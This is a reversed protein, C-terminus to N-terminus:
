RGIREVYDINKLNSLKKMLRRLQRNNNVQVILNAISVSDNVKTDVSTININQNSICESIEKLWGKYDQGAIKLQVNFHDSRKVNWNVPILRDTENALLPLSKCSSIHVTLGRGRTVFGILDDGPIPNCCKGFNVMLNDIGDLVIEDSIPRTIKSFNLIRNEDINEITKQPRLKRLIDRVTINGNGIEKLLMDDSSYGFREYSKKIEKLDKKMKLRRLTKELLELGLKISEDDRLSKLYKGVQNRAKSTVIYKQWGYSPMQKKGTIIEVRDGNKLKTNLPVTSHNVKAGMCHMGIQTHVQFAFDVPTAGIPLQILDGAPTFVFIEESFLDVKLLDMFEKPDSSENQLIDLLERLWKVNKDLEASKGGKYVWHAAVGIEATDDMESTRIQIEVMRGGPGVVTTHVSQYGNSKPMAIFDKFREQIPNYLSHVIGLALYCQEVKNVVIRIAYLDYIEEFEKNRSLMKGYISALSKPRGYICPEIDYKKLEIGIPKLISHIFKKRQRNTTKLKSDIEKYVTPNITKFVLDDLKAKVSSMGLRHALPAYIERTEIAIRHQKIQSMHSITEMNHLRDAFKIIIVRLDKAVSLLMKMFNGVQKEKRSSFEIGSIKSVGDVLNAVDIGFENELQNLTADTDEITDHLLGAIITTIDMDWEALTNAVAVCHNFFPEGSKRKQGKHHSLGFEYAKWLQLKVENDDIDKFDSIADFLKQFPRPYKGFLQPALVTLPNNM